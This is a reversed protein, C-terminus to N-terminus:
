KEVLFRNLVTLRLEKFPSVAKILKRMIDANESPEQSGVFCEEEPTLQTFDGQKIVLWSTKLCNFGVKLPHHFLEIGGSFRDCTM